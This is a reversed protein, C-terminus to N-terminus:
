QMISDSCHMCQMSKMAEGVISRVVRMTVNCIKEHLFHKMFTVSCGLEHGPQPHLFFFATESFENVFYERLGGVIREMLM